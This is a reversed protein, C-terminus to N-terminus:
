TKRKRLLALGGLGFLLITTPEPVEALGQVAALGHVEGIYWEDSGYFGDIYWKGGSMSVDYYRLSNPRVGTGNKDDDSDSVWIGLYDSSNLGYKYGWVTIAHGCKPKYVALTTGYGSSLYGAITAMAVADDSSSHFYDGFNETPYFGGGAVDVHSWGDWNQSTNTGDFWWDWGYEMMGGADTWHDQFYGFMEDTNTIGGVNGWGTWELVNSASAAWCMYDDENNGLAKEADCWTGGYNDYLMYDVIAAAPLSLVFIAVIVACFLGKERM